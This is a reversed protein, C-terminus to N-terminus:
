WARTPEWNQSEIWEDSYMAIWKNNLGYGQIFSDTTLVIDVGKYYKTRYVKEIM